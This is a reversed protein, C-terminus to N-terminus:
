QPLDELRQTDLLTIVGGEISLMGESKFDSITRILTERATGAMAALDDRSLDITPSDVKRAYQLLARSVKRRVSSFALEVLQAESYDAHKALIKIFWAACLRDRYMLSKFDKAPILLIEANDVVEATEHYESENLLSLLGFFDGEVHIATILEKGTDSSKLVKVKGRKVYYLFHPTQGEKYVISKPALNLQEGDHLLEDTLEHIKAENFFHPVRQESELISKLKESKHLRLEIADLLAVDDFPKTIYDDAGLGMGKRFDEKEAKATLFLFPIHMLAPDRNLIRLVGYGDLKPMMVDCLILDPKADRALQVGDVGDKADVVEYGALEMMECLNERVEENDEIVLIKSM